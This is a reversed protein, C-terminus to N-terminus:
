YVSLPHNLKQTQYFIWGTCDPKPAQWQPPGFIPLANVMNYKKALDLFADVAAESGVFVKFDERDIAGDKDTSGIVIVQTIEM